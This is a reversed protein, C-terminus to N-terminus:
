YRRKDEQMKESVYKFGVQVDIVERENSGFYYALKDTVSSTKIIAGSIKKQDIIYEALLLILLQSSIYRGSEDVLAVRDADGDTAIGLSYEGQMLEDGLPKLNKEIPEANRGNFSESPVGFITNSQIGYKALLDSVIMKGAGGMSDILPYIGSDSILQFDVLSEIHSSYIELLDVKEINSDNSVVSNKGLLEEIMLTEVTLFPGGSASKFKIGNYTYPNHSATIMVGASLNLAKVAYSLLPTPTVSDSLFVKIDNGSLVESFIEAFHQSKRRGDFGIVASSSSNLKLYDSFAQAATSMTEENVQDDIIGRWGDTGFIIKSQM